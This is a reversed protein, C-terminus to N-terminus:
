HCGRVLWQLALWIIMGIGGVTVLFGVLLLYAAWWTRLLNAM